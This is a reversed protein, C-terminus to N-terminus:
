VIRDGSSKTGEYTASREEMDESASIIQRQKRASFGSLYFASLFILVGVGVGVVGISLGSATGVVVFFIVGMVALKLGLRVKSEGTDATRRAGFKEIARQRRAVQKKSAERVEQDIEEWHRRLLAMEPPWDDGVTTQRQKKVEPIPPIRQCKAVPDISLLDDRHFHNESPQANSKDAASEVYQSMQAVVRRAKITQNANSKPRPSETIGPLPDIRQVKRAEPFDPVEAEDAPFEASESKPVGALPQINQAQRKKNKKPKKARIILPEFSMAEVIDVLMDTKSDYQSKGECYPCRVHQGDTANEDVEM